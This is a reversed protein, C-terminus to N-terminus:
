FGQPISLQHMNTVQCNLFEGKTHVQSPHYMYSLALITHFKFFETKQRREWVRCAMVFDMSESLSVVHSTIREPVPM